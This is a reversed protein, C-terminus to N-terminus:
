EISYINENKKFMEDDLLYLYDILKTRFTGTGSNNKDVFERAKEGAIGMALTASIAGVLPNNSGISSGIISTLVCGCGTIQTMMIDGNEIGYVEEGNSIIDIAGSSIIISKTKKSLAKVINSNEKLTNKTIADNESADVGKAINKEVNEMEKLELLKAIAKIESMNGRIATIEYNKILELMLKNRNETIGVAVPDIVIPVKSEKAVKCATRIGEIKEDSLMGFNVVLVDSIKVLEGIDEKYDTMAPSAGIALIANACDNITVANTICITLPNKDKVKNMASISENILNEIKKVM